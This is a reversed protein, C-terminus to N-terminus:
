NTKKAGASRPKWARLLQQAFYLGFGHVQLCVVFFMHELVVWPFNLFLRSTKRSLWYQKLDDFNDYLGYVIPLIGFVAVGLMFQKLLFVQNRKLSVLAFLPAFGSVLWAYEWGDVVPLRLRQLFHPPRIGAIVCLATSLRLLMLLVLLIHCVAMVKIRSKYTASFCFESKGCEECVTNGCYRNPLVLSDVIVTKIMHMM